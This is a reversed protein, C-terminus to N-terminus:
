AVLGIRSRVEAIIAEREASWAKVANPRDCGEQTAVEVMTIKGLMLLVAHKRVARLASSKVTIAAREACVANVAALVKAAGEADEAALVAQVAEAERTREDPLAALDNEDGVEVPAILRARKLPKRVEYAVHDVAKGYNLVLRGDHVVVRDEDPLLTSLFYAGVVQPDTSGVESQVHALLSPWPVARPGSQAAGHLAAMPDHPEDLVAGYNALRLVAALRAPADPRGDLAPRFVDEKWKLYAAVLSERDGVPWERMPRPRSFGVVRSVHRLPIDFCLFWLRPHMSEDPRLPGDSRYLPGIRQALVRAGAMVFDEAALPPMGVGLALDFWTRFAPVIRRLAAETRPPLAGGSGDANAASSNGM